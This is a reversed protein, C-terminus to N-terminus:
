LTQKNQKTKKTKPKPTLSRWAKQKMSIKIQLMVPNCPCGKLVWRIREFLKKQIKKRKRTDIGKLPERQTNKESSKYCFYM